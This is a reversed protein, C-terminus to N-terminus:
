TSGSNRTKLAIRKKLIDLDKKDLRSPTEERDTTATARKKTPKYEILLPQPNKKVPKEKQPKNVKKERIKVEKKINTEKEEKAEADLTKKMISFMLVIQLLAAVLIFKNVMLVWISRIITLILRDLKNYTNGNINKFQRLMFTIDTIVYIFFFVFTKVCLIFNELFHSVTDRHPVFLLLMFIVTMFYVIKQNSQINTTYSLMVLIVIIISQVIGLSDSLLHIVDKFIAGYAIWALWIWGIWVSNLSDLKDIERFRLFDILTICLLGLSYSLIALPSLLPFSFRFCYVFVGYVLLGFIMMTAAYIRINSIDVVSQSEVDKRNINKLKKLTDM